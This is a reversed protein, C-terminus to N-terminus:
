QVVKRSYDPKHVGLLMLAFIGAIPFIFMNRLFSRLAAAAEPKSTPLVMMAFDALNVALFNGFSIVLVAMLILGTMLPLRSWENRFNVKVRGRIEKWYARDLVNRLPHGTLTTLILTWLLIRSLMVTVATVDNHETVYWEQAAALTATIFAIAFLMAHRYVYVISSGLM